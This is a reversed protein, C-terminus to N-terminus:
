CITLLSDKPPRPRSLPHLLPGTTRASRRARLVIAIGLSLLSFWDVAGGGGGGGGGGSTAPPQVVPPPTSVPPPSPSAPKPSVNLPMYLTNDVPDTEFTDSFADTGLNTYIQRAATGSFTIVLDAGAPLSAFTCKTTSPNYSLPACSAGGTDTKELALVGDPDSFELWVGNATDPGVNHARVTVQLADGLTVGLFASSEMSVSLNAIAPEVSASSSSSVPGLSPEAAEVGVTLSRYGLDGTVDQLTGTIRQSAGAPLDGLPCIWETTATPSNSCAGAPGTMTVVTFGPIILRAIVHTAIVTGQNSVELVADLTGHPRPYLPTTSFRDISLNVAPLVNLAVHYLNNATNSDNIAHATVDISAPGVREAGAQLHVRLSQAAPLRPVLCGPPDAYSCNGYTVSAIRVGDGVATVAVDFADSGLNEINFDADIAAGLLVQSPASVRSISVDTPPLPSLCTAAAIVPAMQQLSCESFRDSDNLTPNMLYTNGANVCPGAEADHPAGFNHGIEHAAILSGFGIDTIRSLSVARTADCISGRYAIGVVPATLQRGTFLHVLGQRSLLPTATRHASLEALLTPPDTTGFPDDSNTLVEVTGIDLHVGVQSVFIGDVVNAMSIMAQMPALGNNNQQDFLSDGVLGLEIYEGSTLLPAAAAASSLPAASSNAALPSTLSDMEDLLPGVTDRWRYIIPPDGSDDGPNALYPAASSYPEIAYLETGDSIVGAWAGRARTLRAWSRPANRIEGEYVDLQDPSAIKPDLRSTLRSNPRLDIDFRHGFAYFSFSPPPASASALSQARMRSDTTTLGQVREHYLISFGPTQARLPGGALLALLGCVGSLAVLARPATSSM